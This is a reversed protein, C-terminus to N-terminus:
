NITTKIDHKNVFHEKISVNENMLNHHAQTTSVLKACSEILGKNTIIEPQMHLLNLHAAFLGMYFEPTNEVESPTKNYLQYLRVCMIELAELLMSRNLTDGTFDVFVTKTEDTM